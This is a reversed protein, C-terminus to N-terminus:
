AQSFLLAVDNVQLATSFLQFSDLRGDLMSGSIFGYDGITTSGVATGTFPAGSGCGSFVDQGDLYIVRCGNSGLSRNLSSFQLSSIWKTIYAM